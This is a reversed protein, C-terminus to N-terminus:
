ESEKYLTCKGPRGAQRGQACLILTRDGLTEVVVHRCGRCGKLRKHLGNEREILIDLPDRSYRHSPLIPTLPKPKNM